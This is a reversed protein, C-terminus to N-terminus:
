QEVIYDFEHGGQTISSVGIDFGGTSPDVYVNSAGPGVATVVVKPINTYGSRFSVYAVVADGGCNPSVGVNVDVTGAADNGSISVTGNQGICAGGPSVGPEAGQTIVHGGFTIGYDSVLSSTHFTGVALTGGVALNGSVNEGGQVTLLQSLTTPGQVRASGTVVLTSRLNLNSLTGDGNVNLQQLSTNGADLQTINADSVTLAKNLNLLGGVSVNGAVQLNGNFHANPNVTLVIGSDGVPTQNVGIKDLAAQNITVQGQASQIKKDQGKIIFTIVGVNVALILIVVALGIFTARHSPRYSGRRLRRKPSAERAPAPEASPDKALEDRKANLTEPAPAQDKSPDNGM